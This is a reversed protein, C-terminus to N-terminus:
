SSILYPGHPSGFVSAIIVWYLGFNAHVILPYDRTLPDTTISALRNAYHVSQGLVSSCSAPAPLGGHYAPTVTLPLLPRGLPLQYSLQATSGAVARPQQVAFTPSAGAGM